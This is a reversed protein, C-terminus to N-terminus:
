RSANSSLAFMTYNRMEDIQEANTAFAIFFDTYQRELRSVIARIENAKALSIKSSKLNLSKLLALETKRNRYIMSVQDKFYDTAILSVSCNTRINLSAVFELFETFFIKDEESDDTPCIGQLRRKLLDSNIIVSEITDMGRFQIYFKSDSMDLTIPIRNHKAKKSSTDDDFGDASALLPSILFFSLFLLGSIKIMRSM